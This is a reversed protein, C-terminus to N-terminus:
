STQALMTLLVGPTVVEYESGLQQAVQKLDSPSMSWALIYISLYLPRRQNASAAKKIMNVTSSVSEGIGLNQYVPVGSVKTWTPNHQGDGSLIGRLGFPSLAKVIRRQLNRNTLALGADGFTLLFQLIDRNLVELVTLNMRQMLQGTRELFSSLHQSPWRSPYIYGAGSPGAVLEDNPTATGIYYAAMAPAAESLVPSITWGIPISGRAPDHWIRQLRHLNYQLNDGESMTFSVFVKREPHTSSQELYQEMQENAPSAITQNEQTEVKQSTPPKSPLEAQVSTWVELNFYFDTALVPKAASSALSVGVGEDIFWGLHAVEPPFAKLIKKMLCRESMWNTRSDPLINRPNLWYIFTRTAVLFARLGGAIRPDLGAVLKTSCDALLHRKAWDYAQLRTKWQYTRLDALVDLRHPAQQLTQAQTPSVVIGDRQGALMTAINISDIFDPDYIILGQSSSRYTTLLADLVKDVPASFVEHPISTFVENFWFLDSEGTILYVKPQPRNILGVLTTVSLQIDQSAHRITYIDLHKPAQFAPLMRDGSWDIGAIETYSHMTQRELTYFLFIEPSVGSGGASGNYGQYIM